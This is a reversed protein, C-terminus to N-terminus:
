LLYLVKAPESEPKMYIIDQPEHLQKGHIRHMVYLTHSLIELKINLMAGRRDDDHSRFCRFCGKSSSSQVAVVVLGCSSQVHLIIDPRSLICVDSSQFHERLTLLEWM